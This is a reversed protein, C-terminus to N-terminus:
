NQPEFPRWYFLGDEGKASRFGFLKYDRFPIYWPYYDFRIVANFRSIPKSNNQIRVWDELRTIFKGDMNLWEQGTGIVKEPPFTAICPEMPTPPEEGFDLQCGHMEMVPYRLPMFGTNTAVFAISSPNRFDGNAEVTVRPLFTVLAAAGGILTAFALSVAFVKGELTWRPKIRTDLGIRTQEGLQLQQNSKQRPKRRKPKRM